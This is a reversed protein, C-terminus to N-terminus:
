YMNMDSPFQSLKYEPLVSSWLLSGMGFSYVVVQFFSTFHESCVEM